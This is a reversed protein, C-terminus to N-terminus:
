GAGGAPELELWRYGYTELAAAFAGSAAEALREGSLLDVLSCGEWAALDLTTEQRESSLNHLLLISRDEYERVYALIARNGPSLLRLQGRGFAPCQKRMRLIRRTWNLLSDPDADQAAVNVHQYGYVPGEILPDSLREAPAESFGANPGDNWQMPTRVGDRDELWINDGMGIEDGYYLVPSGVFTLL